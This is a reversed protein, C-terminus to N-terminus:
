GGFLGSARMQFGRLSLGAPVNVRPVWSRDSGREWRGGSIRLMGEHGLGCAMRGTDPSGGGYPLALWPSDPAGFEKLWEQTRTLSQIIEDQSQSPLHEHSWTHSGISIGRGCHRRLEDATAIGYSDPLRPPDSGDFSWERIAIAQGGFERFARERREPTLTGAEAMEDWWTSVSGLLAPAVFMTAPVGRRVLEPLALTVAGRYADDFTIVAAPRDSPTTAATHLDLIEHTRTLWEIQRVFEPLPLHLSSDGRGADEPRVVNHYALITVRPAALRLALGAAGSATAAVEFAGKLLKRM